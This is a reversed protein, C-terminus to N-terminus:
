ELGLLGPLHDLAPIARVGAPAPEDGRRVLVTEMGAARAGEIDDVITDGVHLVQGAPVGLRRCAEAFIHPDPKAWGLEASALIHDFADGLGLEDCFHGLGCQWNSVVALPLGAQRLTALVDTVHPFVAFCDPGLLRWLPEAHEAVAGSPAHINLRRFLRDALRERYRQKEGASAAPDYERHHLAFLDYLVAHEWADGHLGHEALYAMLTTGRGRGQRHYVLTNHFDLTVAGIM